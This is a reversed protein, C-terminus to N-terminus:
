NKEYKMRGGTLQLSLPSSLLMNYDLSIGKGKYFEIIKGLASYSPEAVSTEWKTYTTRNIYIADAIEQQTVGSFCRITHLNNTLYPNKIRDKKPM